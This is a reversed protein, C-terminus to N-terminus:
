IIKFDRKVQDIVMDIERLTTKDEINEKLKDLNKAMPKFKKIAETPIDLGSKINTNLSLFLLVLRQNGLLAAYTIPLIGYIDSINIISNDKKHILNLAQDNNFWV